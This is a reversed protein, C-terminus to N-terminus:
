AKKIGDQHNSPYEFYQGDFWMVGFKEEEILKIVGITEEEDDRWIVKDGVEFYTDTDNDYWGSNNEGENGFVNKITTNWEEFFNDKKM